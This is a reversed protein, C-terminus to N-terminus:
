LKYEKGFIILTSFLIAVPSLSILYSPKSLEDSEPYSGISLEQSCPLSGEPEMFPPFNKVLQVVLQDTPRNTPRDTLDTM